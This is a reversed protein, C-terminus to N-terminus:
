NQKYQISLLFANGIEVNASYKQSNKFVPLIRQMYFWLRNGVMHPKLQVLKFILFNLTLLQNLASITMAHIRAAATSIM